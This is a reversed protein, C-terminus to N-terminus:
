RTGHALHLLFGIVFLLIGAAGIMPGINTEEASVGFIALILMLAGAIYPLLCGVGMMSIFTGGGDEGKPENKRSSSM